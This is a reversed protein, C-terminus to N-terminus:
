NCAISSIIVKALSRRCARNGSGILDKEGNNLLFLEVERVVQEKNLNRLAKEAAETAVKKIVPDVERTEPAVIIGEGLNALARCVDEAVKSSEAICQGRPSQGYTLSILSMSVAVAATLTKSIGM